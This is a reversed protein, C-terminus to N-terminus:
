APGQPEPWPLPAGDRRTRVLVVLELEMVIDLLRPRLALSSTVSERAVQDVLLGPIAHCTWRTLPPFMAQAAAM